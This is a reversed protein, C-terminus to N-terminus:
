PPAERLMKGASTMRHGAIIPSQEFGSEALDPDFCDVRWFYGAPNNEPKYLISGNVQSGSGDNHGLANAWLPAENVTPHGRGGALRFGHEELIHDVTHLALGLADWAMHIGWDPLQIPNDPEKIEWTMTKGSPGQRPVVYLVARNTANGRYFGGNSMPTWPGLVSALNRSVEWALDIGDDRALIAQALTQARTKVAERTM